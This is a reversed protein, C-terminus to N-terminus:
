FPPCSATWTATSTMGPKECAVNGLARQDARSCGSVSVGPLLDDVGGLGVVIGPLESCEDAELPSGVGTAVIEMADNDIPIAFVIGAHHLGVGGQLRLAAVVGDVEPIPQLGVFVFRAPANEGDGM